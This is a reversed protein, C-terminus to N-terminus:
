TEEYLLYPRMILPIHDIRLESSPIHHLRLIEVTPRPQLDMAEVVLSLMMAVVALQGVCVSKKKKFSAGSVSNLSTGVLQNPFLSRSKQSRASTTSDTVRRTRGGWGSWILMMGHHIRMADIIWSVFM